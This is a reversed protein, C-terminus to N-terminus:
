QMGERFVNLILVKKLPNTSNLHLFPATLLLKARKRESSVEKESARVCVSGRGDPRWQEDEM